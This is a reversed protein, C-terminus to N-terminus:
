GFVVRPRRLESREGGVGRGFELLLLGSSPGRFSSCLRDELPVGQMGQRVSHSRWCSRGGIPRLAGHAGPRRGCSARRARPSPGGLELCWQPRARRLQAGVLIPRASSAPDRRLRVPRGRHAGGM